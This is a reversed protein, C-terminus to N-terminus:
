IPFAGHDTSACPTASRKSIVSPQDVNKILEITRSRHTGRRSRGPKPVSELITTMAMAICTPIVKKGVCSFKSKEKINEFNDPFFPVVYHGPFHYVFTLYKTDSKILKLIDNIIMNEQYTVFKHESKISSTFLNLDNINSKLLIVSSM